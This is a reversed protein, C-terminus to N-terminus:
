GTIMLFYLVTLFRSLHIDVIGDLTFDVLHLSVLLPQNLHDMIQHDFDKLWTSLIKDEKRSHFIILSFLDIM